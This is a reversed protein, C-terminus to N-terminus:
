AAAFSGLGCKRMRNWSRGNKINDESRRRRNLTAVKVWIKRGSNLMREKREWAYWMGPRDWRGQHSRSRNSSSQLHHLEENHSHRIDRTVEERKWIFPKRPRRNVFVTQSNEKNAPFQFSKQRTWFLNIQPHYSIVTVPRSHCLPNWSNLTGLNCSSYNQRNNQIPTFSPRQCQPLFPLQPHKLVHHQPSYKSRPPVVYRPFPPSQM